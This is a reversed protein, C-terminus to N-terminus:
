LEEIIMIGKFYREKYIKQLQKRVFAPPSDVQSRNLLTAGECFFLHSALTSTVKVRKNSITYFIEQSNDIVKARHFSFNYPPLNHKGKLVHPYEMGRLAQRQRMGQKDLAEGPAPSRGERCM